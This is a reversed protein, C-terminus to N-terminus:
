INEVCVRRQLQAPREKEERERRSERRSRSRVWPAQLKCLDRLSVLKGHAGFSREFGAYEPPSRAGLRGCAVRAQLARQRGIQAMQAAQLNCARQAKCAPNTHAAQLQQIAGPFGGGVAYTHPVMSITRIRDRYCGLMAAQQLEGGNESHGHTHASSPARARSQPSRSLM